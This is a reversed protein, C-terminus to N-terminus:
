LIKVTQVTKTIGGSILKATLSNVLVQNPLEIIGELRKYQTLSVPIAGSPLNMSWPKGAKTGALTIVLQGNFEPANKVSQMILIQWQLQNPGLLEANLGRINITETNAGQTLKQFFGLDDRLAQIESELKKVQSKLNEKEAKEATIMSDSVNVRTLKEDYEKKLQAFESHLKAVDASSHGEIGAINKGLEFAWLCIAASFGLMVAILAWRLPWPLDSRVAMRPSSVTLRRRLLRFRMINPIKSRTFSIVLLFFYFAANGTAICGKQLCEM